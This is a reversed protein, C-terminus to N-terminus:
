RWNVMIEDIYKGDRRFKVKIEDVYTSINGITLNKQHKLSKKETETLEYTSIIKIHQCAKNNKFVYQNGLKVFQLCNILAKDTINGNIFEAYIFMLRDDAIPGVVIDHSNIFKVFNALQNYKNANLHGRNVGVYLAWEINDKFKYIKLNATDVKLAYYVGTKDDVILTKAQEPKDGTYFGKGFDCLERSLDAQIEGKIGKHSGHYLTIETKAPKPTNQRINSNKTIMVNSFKYNLFDQKPISHKQNNEDVAVCGIIKGNKDKVKEIMTLLM